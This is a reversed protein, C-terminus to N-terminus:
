KQQWRTVALAYLEDVYTPVDVDATSAYASTGVGEVYETIAEGGAEGGVASTEVTVDSSVMIGGFPMGAAEALTTTTSGMSKKSGFDSVSIRTTNNQEPSHSRMSGDESNFESKKHRTGFAKLPIARSFFRSKSKQKVQTPRVVANTDKSSFITAFEHHVKREFSANQMAGELVQQRCRLFSLPTYELDTTTTTVTSNHIDPIVHFALLDCTVIQNSGPVLTTVKLAKASFIAHRFFSDPVIEGLKEISSRFDEWFGINLEEPAELRQAIRALCNTVSLGDLQTLLQATSADMPNPSSQVWPLRYPLDKKVLVEWTRRSVGARLAFCGLMTGHPIDTEQKAQQQLAYLHQTLYGLPVRMSRALHEAIKDLPTFRYGDTLLKATEKKDCQHVLLLLQGKGFIDVGMNAEVDRILGSRGPSIRNLLTKHGTLAGINLTGTMMVETYLTGMETLPIKLGQAVSAAACCFGERFIISYDEIESSVEFLSSDVSASRTGGLDNLFHVSKLHQRMNPLWRLISNWNHSARYSWQFAPHTVNFQDEFAKENEHMTINQCPLLGERTVMLRGESDFRACALVVQQARDALQKHRRNAQVAIFLCVPVTM